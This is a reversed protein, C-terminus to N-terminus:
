DIEGRSRRVHDAIAANVEDTLERILQDYEEAPLDKLAEAFEAQLERIGAVAEERSMVRKTTIQKVM